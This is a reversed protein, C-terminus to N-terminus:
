HQLSATLKFFWQRPAQRLGYLSKKLKCVQNPKPPHFGPHPKMYIEEHLDGHLFANHVDMQHLEWGQSVAVTLLCQVTVMKAVPAFTETFDEGEVQTNGLVVLRAKYREVTGDAHYKIKYVWKCGL